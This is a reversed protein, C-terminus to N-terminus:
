GCMGNAAYRLMGPASRTKSSSSCCAIVAVGLQDVLVQVVVAPVCPIPSLISDFRISLFFLNGESWKSEDDKETGELRAIFASLWLRWWHLLVMLVVLGWEVVGPVHVRWLWLVHGILCHRRCRTIGSLHRRLRVVMGSVIGIVAVVVMVDDILIKLHDSLPSLGLRSGCLSNIILLRRSSM